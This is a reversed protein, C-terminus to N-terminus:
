RGKEPALGLESHAKASAWTHSPADAWKAARPLWPAISTESQMARQSGSKRQESGQGAQARPVPHPHHPPSRAKERSPVARPCMVTVRRGTVGRHHPQIM